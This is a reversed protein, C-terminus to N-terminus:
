LDRFVNTSGTWTSTSSNYTGESFRGNGATMDNAFTFVISTITKESSFTITNGTTKGSSAQYLRLQSSSIAPNSTGDGKACVITIPDVGGDNLAQSPSIEVSEAWASGSGVILACLLLMMRSLLLKRM